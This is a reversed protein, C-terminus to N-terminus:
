APDKDTKAEPDPKPMKSNPDTQNRLILPIAETPIKRVRVTDAGALSQKMLRHLGDLIVWRGRWSMIDIPWSTDAQLTRRYEGPYKDPQDMVQRSAVYHGNPKSLLFPIDFHWVLEAIPMEETPYDLEWVKREDWDFDFGVRKIIDPLHSKM